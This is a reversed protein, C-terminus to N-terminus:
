LDSRRGVMLESIERRANTLEFELGEVSEKLKINSAHLDSNDRSMTILSQKQLDREKTLEEVRLDLGRIKEEAEELEDTVEDWKKQLDDEREEANTLQSELEEIREEAAKMKEEAEQAAEARDLLEWLKREKAMTIGCFRSDTPNVFTFLPPEGLREMAKIRAGTPQDTWYLTKMNKARPKRRDAM